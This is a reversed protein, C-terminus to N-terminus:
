GRAAGALPSPTADRWKDGGAHGGVLPAARKRLGFQACLTAVVGAAFLGIGLGAAAGAGIGGAAAAAGGTSSSSTAAPAGLSPSASATPTASATRSSTANLVGPLQSISTLVVCPQYPQAGDVAGNLASLLGAARAGSADTASGAVHLVAAADTYGAADAAARVQAYMAANPKVAGVPYDSGFLRWFVSGFPATANVLTAADGNSLTGVLYRQALAQVAAVAGARPTLDGWARALAEFEPSGAAYNLSSSALADTLAARIVFPFPQPAATTSNFNTWCIFWLWKDL